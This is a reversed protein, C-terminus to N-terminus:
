HAGGTTAPRMWEGKMMYLAKDAVGLLTGISDGDKPYSAVGMSVSLSPEEGDKALLDSIRRAVLAASAASTEPLVLAFEDGGHRAATDISRSCGRMVEALRCIARDGILHGYQDNVYKLRDLDLLLLAFERRTRKSRSIEAHLVDFLRRHNALGTLSDSEAQQRLRDELTRQETVDGVIMEYAGTATHEGHVKRGSIRMTLVAGNKRQCGIEFSEVRGPQRLRDMMRKQAEPDQIIDSALNAALLEEKSTYGLMNVFAENVDLLKGEDSCRFIGYAPNDLLARYRAESHGLAKEAQALEKRLAKEDLARRVAIPLQALREQEVYDFAGNATLEAVSERRLTATVLLLPIEQVVQRLLQVAKAGKWSPSPFEAVIIDYSQARLKEACEALTLVTDASVTFQAKKLEQLCCEVEDADRHVFLV